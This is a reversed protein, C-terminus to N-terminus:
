QKAAKHSVFILNRDTMPRQLHERKFFWYTLTIYTSLNRPFRAWIIKGFYILRFNTGELNNRIQEFGKLSAPSSGEQSVHALRKLAITIGLNIRIQTLIVSHLFRCNRRTTASWDLSFKSSKTFIQLLKQKCPNQIHRQVKVSYWTFGTDFLAWVELWTM